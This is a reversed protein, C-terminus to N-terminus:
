RFNEGAALPAELGALGLLCSEDDIRASSRSRLKNTQAVRRARSVLWSQGRTVARARPCARPPATAVRSLPQKTTTATSPSSTLPGVIAHHHTTPPLAARARRRLM